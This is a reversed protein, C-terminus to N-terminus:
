TNTYKTYLHSYFTKGVVHPKAWATKINHSKLHYNTQIFKPLQFLAFGQLETIKNSLVAKLGQSISKKKM